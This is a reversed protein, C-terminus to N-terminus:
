AAANLRSDADKQALRECLVRALALRAPLVRFPSCSVYDLGFALCFRLSTPDGGQEGCIGYSADNRVRRGRSVATQILERVPDALIKFPDSKLIKMELYAPLYHASDDRSMGLTTQTLDNTGFAFFEGVRALQDASLAAAPLEIMSGVRFHLRDSLPIKLGERVQSEIEGVRAKLGQLEAHTFVLPFMIGPDVPVKRSACDYAARIIARMQLNYVEPQLIGFRCARLGLMPNHERLKDSVARIQEEPLHPLQTVLTLFAEESQPVFDHLPLDMLRINVVRGRMVEFVKKFDQFQIEELKSFSEPCQSADGTFVINRVERLAEPEMFMNETRCLGVGDAGFALGVEADKPGNINVRIQMPRGESQIVRSVLLNLDQVPGERYAVNHLQGKGLYLRGEEAAELTVITGAEIRTGGIRCSRGDGEFEIGRLGVVCPIGNARAMVAAHSAIGSATTILGSIVGLGPTDSILLENTMLLVNGGYEKKHGMAESMNFFVAGVTTGPAATVGVGEFPELTARSAEDLTPHLLAEVDNPKMRAIAEVDDIRGEHNLELASLVQARSTVQAEDFQTLWLHGHEDTVFQVETVRTWVAEVVPMWRRLESRVQSPCEPAELGLKKSLGGHSFVGYLDKRGTFPHRTYSVGHIATAEAIAPIQVSLMLEDGGSKHAAKIAYLLSSILHYEPAAPFTRGTRAAIEQQYRSLLAKFTELDLEALGDTGKERDMRVQAFERFDLYPAGLVLSSYTEIFDAVIAFARAEGLHLVLAPLTAACAGIGRVSGVIGGQITLLMPHTSDGLRQHMLTEFRGTVETLERYFESTPKHQAFKLNASTLYARPPVPVRAELLGVWRALDSKPRAHLAERIGRLHERPTQNTLEWFFQPPKM